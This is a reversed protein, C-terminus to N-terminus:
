VLSVQQSSVEIREPLMFFAIAQLLIAIYILIFGIVVITLATGILYIIATASFLGIKFTNAIEDFSRKYFLASIILVIWVVILVIIIKLMFGIFDLTFIRHMPMVYRIFGWGIISTLGIYLIAISVISLVLYLLYDKYISERKVADSIQKIGIAVLVIGAIFFAIGVIPIFVLLMLISGIGCLIKAGSIDSM